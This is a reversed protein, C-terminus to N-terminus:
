APIKLNPHRQRFYVAMVAAALLNGAVVAPWALVNLVAEAFLFSGVLFAVELYVFLLLIGFGLNPNREAAAILRAVIGGLVAFALFHVWTFLFVLEFSFPLPAGSGLGADGRFLAAALVMPTHFPRGATVDIVFFWLAITAGGLLGSVIGEQYVGENTSSRPESITAPSAVPEARM